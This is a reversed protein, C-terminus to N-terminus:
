YEESTAFLLVLSRSVFSDSLERTKLSGENMM